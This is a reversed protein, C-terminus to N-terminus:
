IHIIQALMILENSVSQKNYPFNTRDLLWQAHGTVVSCM